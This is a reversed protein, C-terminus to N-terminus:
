DNSPNLASEINNCAELLLDPLENNLRTTDLRYTPGSIAIAGLISGDINKVVAGVARLGEVFEEDNVAYGQARVTELETLFEPESVITHDTAKPLGAEAIVREVESQPMEALIAKGCATNHLYHYGGLRRTETPSNYTGYIVMLKSRDKIEFSVDEETEEALEDVVETIISYSRRNAKLYEGFNVFRLTLHYVTGDRRIYDMKELTMLHNHITSRAIDLHENLEALTAGEKERILDIIELSRQTTTLIREDSNRNM